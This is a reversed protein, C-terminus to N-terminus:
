DCPGLGEKVFQLAVSKARMLQEPTSGYDDFCLATFRPPPAADSGANARTVQSIRLLAVEKGQDTVQFDSAKLGSVAHGHADRVSVAVPILLADSPPAGPVYARSSVRVEQESRQTAAPVTLVLFAIVTPFICEGSLRGLSFM